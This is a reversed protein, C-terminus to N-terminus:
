LFYSKLSLKHIRPSLLFHSPPKIYCLAKPSVLVKDKPCTHISIWQGERVEGVIEESLAQPVGSHYQPRLYKVVGVRAQSQPAACYAVEVGSM